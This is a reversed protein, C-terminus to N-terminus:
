YRRKKQNTVWYQKNKNKKSLDKRWYWKSVIDWDEKDIIFSYEHNEDWVKIVNDNYEPSNNKYKEPRNRKISTDKNRAITLESSYCGCSKTKGSKLQWGTVSKLKPNGCSCKCLWHCNSGKTKNKDRDVDRGIVTLRNFTKGTLDEIILPNNFKSCGCSKTHGFKISNYRYSKIPSGCDCQCFYFMGIQKGKNYYEKTRDWDIGVVTLSGYKTGIPVINKYRRSCGCSKIKEVNTKRTNFTKGCKKCTCNWFETRNKLGINLKQTIKDNTICNVKIYENEYGTYDIREPM